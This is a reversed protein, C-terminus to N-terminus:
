RMDDRDAMREQHAKFASYVLGTLFESGADVPLHAYAGEKVLAEAVSMKPQRVSLDKNVVPRKSDYISTVIVPTTHHKAKVNLMLRSFQESRNPTVDFNYIIVGVDSGQAALDDLTSVAEDVSKVERIDISPIKGQNELINRYGFDVRSVILVNHSM